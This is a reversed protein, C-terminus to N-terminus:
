LRLAFLFKVHTILFVFLLNIVYWLKLFCTENDKDLQADLYTDILHKKM